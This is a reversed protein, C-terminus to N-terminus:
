CVWPVCRPAARATPCLPLRSSRSIMSPIPGRTFKIMSPAPM